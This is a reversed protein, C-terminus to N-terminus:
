KIKEVGGVCVHPPTVPPMFGQIGQASKAAMMM